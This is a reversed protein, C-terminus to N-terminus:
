NQAAIFSALADLTHLRGVLDVESITVGYRLRVREILIVASLSDVYGADFVAAGPDVAEPALSGDSLEVVAHRLEDLIQARRDM